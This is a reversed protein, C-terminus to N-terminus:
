SRPPILPVHVAFSRDDQVVRVPADTLATYRQRISNLGFGTSRPPTLRPHLPNSVVLTHADVTVAIHLPRQLTAVNHKLANEVLLQLTLPVVQWQLQEKPVQVELVIAKGFRRQELGFYTALLELEEGVTILDKDRVTLINRFFASLDEVHTVAKDPDSEILQVLTNFSNFLFHPDVQSRLAELQFRVREQEARQRLQIRQERARLLLFTLGGAALAFLVMVWPLRWWPPRVVLEFGTWSAEEGVGEPRVEFRYTGPPLAPFSIERERTWQVEDSLGRLRYAFQATALGDPLPLAFRVSLRNADHATVYRDQAALRQDGIRVERIFVPALSRLLASDPLIRVLGQDCAAWVSGQQDTTLTNLEMRLDQLGMRSSLDVWQASPRHYAYVGRSSFVLLHGLFPALASVDADGPGGLGHDHWTTGDYGWMGTAPGGAWVWGDADRALSYVTRPGGTGLPQAAGEGVTIVGQGDTAALSRQGDQPLVQYIFGPGVGGHERVRDNRLAAVGGLTGMWVTGEAVAVSLVNPDKPARIGSLQEVAGAASISWAGAGFTGAFVTGDGAASLSVVPTRQSPPLDIATCRAEDTFADPHHFLGAPTAFWIRGARDATLATIGRLDIGEHSPVHLVRADGFSVVDGGQCWWVIGEAGPALSIPADPEQAARYVGGRGLEHVLLMGDALACWLREGHLLLDTVATDAHLGLVTAGAAGDPEWRLLDGSATGAWVSGDAGAAVATVLNDPLGHRQDLVHRVVGREVVVLGQDTALVLREDSLVAADNIHMAQVVSSATVARWQGDPLQLLGHQASALFLAGSATGLLHVPRISRQLTDFLVTDCGLVSCRLLLGNSLSVWAGDPAAAMGNVREPTSRLLLENREGDSLTLGLDSGTWLLGQADQVVHTVAPRLQGTRLDMHQVLPFQAHVGFSLLLLVAALVRPM